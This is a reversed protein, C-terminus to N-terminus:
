QKKAHEISEGSKDFDVKIPKLNWIEEAYSKITRDSSFKGSTAINIVAKKLWNRQDKYEHMLRNHADTYSLLDALHLYNDSKFLADKIPEFIGPEHHSFHNSFLLNLTEKIDNNENYYQHPNYRLKLEAVDEARLGFIYANDIGAEEVIEVNAGDYTGITLAGNLMFKMNGTGSAETGATSIQESVETAAIIKEALSVRYNPIFHVRLVDNVDKDKNIVESVNNILKIILKAMYYGPAAKGGFLFTRPVLDSKNYEGNKIKNYIMVINMVNLLQRKYEHIRKIQTDFIHSTDLIIGNQDKLIKALREKAQQKTNKFADQFGHDTHKNYELLKRLQYLDKIWGDGINETILNALPQNAKLLWRRQTIGNTKNNFRDPYLQAFDPVLRSKLLDTHLQAVGNISHSGVIALYAMRVRKIDGEEIISMDKLKNANGRFKIAVEVLFDYNIQYIIQLHRPLFKEFMSVDWKELAEPMLTHNTYGMTKQTIYWANDWSLSEDDLLIRMLEAIAIAPHTDNLQIAAYDSLKNWSEGSRKFRRLIDSLSCAVFLYQQKFRLEKGSYVNDNPYLVKTLNEAEVKSNVASFYDGRNFDNFSFDEISKASWLRLTNVTTGGYGVIPMDYPIGLITQTNIWKYVIKNNEEVSIVQGGFNIVVSYEPREIEWINGHRLWNDPKEIQHGNEISQNFIGYDYRLGYGFCPYDLTALSDIFCAALRGLGGNGLGADHEQEELEELDYGLEVLADKIGNDICLNIINNGLTRGMLFELSLYYVRKAKNAHHTRQTQLWQGILKDRITIAVAKYRDLETASYKDVGADFKLAEVISWLISDKDKNNRYDAKIDNNM